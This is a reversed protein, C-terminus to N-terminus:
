NDIILIATDAVDGQLKASVGLLAVSAPTLSLISAGMVLTLMSDAEYVINAGAKVLQAGVAVETYNGGASEAHDGTAVNIIAGATKATMSGDVKVGRGGKVAIIKAAAAQEEIDGAVTVTRDSVSLEILAAGVDHKFSGLTEDTVSGVVLDLQNAGVSLSSAGGVDRKHDGGVKMDRKGGISLEANGGVQDVYFTEAHITQNGAVSISQNSGVNSSQSDTVDRSLNSGVKRSHNNGISETANNKVQTTMDKSANFFMEEAGAGDGMRYENSSGGGPTTATQVASRAAHKPLAYPPPTVANYVRGCVLPRDPDGEVHSVTVEWAMRPLYMAGGLQLQSTRIWRSSTDDKKGSRDWPYSVKVEGKDSTHIEEGGAGTTMATQTGGLRQQRERRPPRYSASVTPIGWFAITLRPERGSGADHQRPQEGSIRSRLVLYEQNIPDYPHGEISFRLGPWLLLSGTEGHTVDRDAQVADLLIAAVRKAGEMDTARAPYEYIELEHEGDDTGEVTAELKASPKDPNYDRTTVKDSKVCATKGVHLVRDAAGETGFDEFFPLSSPGEVEGLGQPADGFVLMDKGDVHHIAFYIGEEFLLRHIFALDTERYQVTYLREPHAEQVRWDQNSAPVGAGDLVEKVIDPGTMKQFIRCDARKTLNWLKPAVVVQLVPLDDDDVSLEAQVVTGVFSREQGGDSRALTFTAAQDLVDGPAPLTEGADDWLDLELVGLESMREDLAYRLVFFGRDAITVSPLAQTHNNAM